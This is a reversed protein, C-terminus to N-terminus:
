SSEHDYVAKSKSKSHATLTYADGSCDPSGPRRNIIEKVTTEQSGFVFAEGPKEPNTGFSSPVAQVSLPKVDAAEIRAVCTKAMQIDEQIPLLENSKLMGRVSLEPPIWGLADQVMFKSQNWVVQVRKGQSLATHMELCCFYSSFYKPSIIAIFVDSTTVGAVMGKESRDDAYKDLWASGKPLENYLMQVAGDNKDDQKYSLFYSRNRHNRQKLFRNLTDVPLLVFIVIDLMLGATWARGCPSSPMCVLPDFLPARGSMLLPAHVLFTATFYVGVSLTCFWLGLTLLIHPELLGKLKLEGNSDWAIRGNGILSIILLLGVPVTAFLYAVTWKTLDALPALRRAQCLDRWTAYGCTPEDCELPEEFTGFEFPLSFSAQFAPENDCRILSNNGTGLMVRLARELQPKPYPAFMSAHYWMLLIILEFLLAKFLAPTASGTVWSRFYNGQAYAVAHVMRKLVVFVVVTLPQFAIAWFVRWELELHLKSLLTALAMSACVVAAEFRDFRSWAKISRVDKATCEGLARAWRSTSGEKAEGKVRQRRRAELIQSWILTVLGVLATLFHLASGAGSDFLSVPSSFTPPHLIYLRQLAPMLASVVWPLLLLLRAAHTGSFQTTQVVDSVLRTGSIKRSMRREPSPPADTPRIAAM